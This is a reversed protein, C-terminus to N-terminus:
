GRDQDDQGTGHLRAELQGIRTRGRVTYSLRGADPPILEDIKAYDPVGRVPRKDMIITMPVITGRAWSSFEYINFPFWTPLLFMEPPMAPIADWSWEGLMALWIKTFNRVKPLGGESLIFQKAKVMRPDDASIGALKLAFYAEVTVNLDGPGGYYVAWTGDERQCSLLYRSVQAWRRKEGIGLFHTLMLYEATITANSELEGWWYGEGYQTDLLHEQCSKIASELALGDVVGNAWGNVKGNGQGNAKGDSPGGVWFRRIEPTRQRM